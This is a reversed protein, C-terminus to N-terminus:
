PLPFVIDGGQSRFQQGDNLLARDDHQDPGVSYLLWKGPTPRTPADSDMRDMPDFQGLPLLKQGTSRIYGFERNAAYPDRPIAKLTRAKVLEALSEPYEGDHTLQWHRLALILVLARRATENRTDEMRLWDGRPLFWSILPTTQEIAILSDWRLGDTSANVLLWLARRTRAVEWPSTLAALHLANATQEFPNAGHPLFESVKVALEQPPLNLTNEAIIAEARVTEDPSPMPPLAQYTDLAERLIEPTQRNDATWQLALSLARKETDQGNSAEILPVPGSLHRAMRFLTLADSWAGPLDHKVTLRENATREVYYTLSMIGDLYTARYRTSTQRDLSVFQCGPLKSARRTIELAEEKRALETKLDWPEPATSYEASSMLNAAKQYLPAANEKDSVQAKRKFAAVDFGPGVDPVGYVRLGVHAAIVLAFAGTLLLALRGWRALGPRELMWDASWAWSVGLLSLPILLPIAWPLMRMSLLAGQFVGIMAAGVIAVLCATIGRPIVMGCLQGVSLATVIALFILSGQSLRTATTGDFPTLAGHIVMRMGQLPGPMGIVLWLLIVLWGMWVGIKVGWVVGPRAGHHALFRQTKGRSEAGFINVGAVTLLLVLLVYFIGPDFYNNSIILLIVAGIGITALRWFVPWMERRTQWILAKVTPSILRRPARKRRARAEDRPKISIDLNLRNGISRGPRQGRSIVLASASATALAIALRWPTAAILDNPDSIWKHRVLTLGFAACVISAVAAFMANSSVASWFLGWGLVELLIAVVALAVIGLGAHQSPPEWIPNAATWLTRDFIGNRDLLRNSALWAMAMFTVTLVFTSVVAFSAKGGWLVKRSVPLMDLFLLTNNEREGAFAASSVAFAYLIAWGFAPVLLPGNRVDAGGYTLLFWQCGAATLSLILWIPWFQRVDKWWLRALM